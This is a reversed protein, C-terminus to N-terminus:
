NGFVFCDGGLEAQFAFFRFRHGYVAGGRRYRVFCGAVFAARSFSDVGREGTDSWFFTFAAGVYLFAPENGVAGGTGAAGGDGGNKVSAPLKM